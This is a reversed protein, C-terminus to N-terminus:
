GVKGKLSYIPDLLWKILSRRELMIDAEFLMGSKLDFSKGYAEIQQYELTARLRYVSEQLNIPLIVENPSILAQDIRTIQSGIFGFRQYPFADFRLRAIDGHQVFGASRTPLLLEAVLQAGEPLINLLPKTQVLTEGEVVQIATVTGAHSATIVYQHQQKTQALRQEIDAQQRKLENIRLAYQQPIKKQEATVEMLANDHQLLLRATAQKDLEAELLLQKQQQQDLDSLYGEGNLQNFQDYQQKYLTLKEDALILQQEISQKEEALNQERQKLNRSDQQELEQHQEIENKLLALQETLQLEAQESLEIGQNDKRPLVVSVLQQGQEVWQGETVWLREITGGQPAFSKIVGKDPVLFGQVTEKRSYEASFLFTFILLAIAVLITVTVRISLPQALIVSGKLRQQQATIAAARFLGM